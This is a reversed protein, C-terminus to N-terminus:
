RQHVCQYLQKKKKIKNQNKSARCRPALGAPKKECCFYIHKKIQQLRM